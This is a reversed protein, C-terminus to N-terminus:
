IILSAKSNILKVKTLYASRFELEILLESFLKMRYVKIVWKIHWRLSQRHLISLHFIYAAASCSFALYFKWLPIVVLKAQEKKFDFFEDSACLFIYLNTNKMKLFNFLKKKRLFVTQSFSFCLIKVGTPFDLLLFSFNLLLFVVLHDSLRAFRWFNEQGDSFDAARSRRTILSILIDLNVNQVPSINALLNCHNQPGANCGLLLSQSM